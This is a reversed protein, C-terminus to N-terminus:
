GARGKVTIQKVTTYEELGEFGLERGFGSQKYGGYPLEPYFTNYDNIWVMGARIGRALELAVELDRSWVAAALGYRTGNALALAEQPSTFKLVSVVPGFIEDQAIALDPSVDAFVTPEFFFGREFTEGQPRRGGLLLRAGQRRGLDVYHEVRARQEESVLPGMETDAELPNGLRILRARACFAQLFEDHIDAHLLLRSAAVCNQGHASFAGLIASDLARELDADPFVINPSKGGLELSVAKLGRAASRLVAAGSSTGGTFSVADIDAHEVIAQGAVEGAGTVVNLVDAPLLAGAEILESLRLASLPTLESPKLVCTNGAALAAALKVSANPLPYNWPVILGVVGKPERVTLGLVGGPLDITEGRLHVTARAFFRFFRAAEPIDLRTESLPRGTNVCDWRALEDAHEDILDAIAELADVREGPATRAWEGRDFARRARRVAEDVDAPSAEPVSAVVESTAPNVLRRVGPEQARERLADPTM